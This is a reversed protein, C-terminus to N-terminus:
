ASSAKSQALILGQEVYPRAYFLEVPTKTLNKRLNLIVEPLPKKGESENKEDPKKEKTKM